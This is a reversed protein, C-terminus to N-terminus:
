GPHSIDLQPFERLCYKPKPFPIGAQATVIARGSKGAELIPGFKIIGGARGAECKDVVTRIRTENQM